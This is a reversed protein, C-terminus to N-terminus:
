CFRGCQTCSVLKDDCECRGAVRDLGSVPSDLGRSIMYKCDLKITDEWRRTFNGFPRTGESKVELVKHINGKQGM